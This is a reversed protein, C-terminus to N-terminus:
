PGGVAYLDGEAYATLMKMAATLRAYYRHATYADADRFGKQYRHEQFRLARTQMRLARAGLRAADALDLTPPAATM